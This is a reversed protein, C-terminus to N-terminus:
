GLLTAIAASVAEPTIASMPGGNQGPQFPENTEARLIVSRTHRPRWHFPNTPGFLAVTPTLMADALHMAATDVGAFLRAGRIIAALEPLSSKGALNILPFPTENQITTLHAAEDPDDSGTLVVSFGHRTRLATAVDAWGRASWFKERRATGAHIVVYPPQPLSPLDPITLALPVNEVCIGLPALLDTYHDATHRDRVSSEVFTRFALSRLPKARFRAFTIRRPCGSIAAFFASRDTGTFDMCVDGRMESKMWANPGVGFAGTWQGKPEVVLFRDADLAPVLSRCGPDIVLTVHADPLAERIARLSPTTLILDGIRKLQILTIKM